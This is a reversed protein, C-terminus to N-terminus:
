KHIESEIVVKVTLKRNNKDIGTVEYEGYVSDSFVDFVDAAYALLMNLKLDEYATLQNENLEKMKLVEEM